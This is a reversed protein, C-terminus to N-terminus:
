RTFACGLIFTKLEFVNPRIAAKLIAASPLKLNKAALCDNVNSITTNPLSYVAAIATTRVLAQEKLVARTPFSNNNIAFVARGIDSAVKSARYVQYLFWLPWYPQSRLCSYSCKFLNRGLM